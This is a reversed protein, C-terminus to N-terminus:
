QWKQSQVSGASNDAAGSQFCEAAIANKNVEELEKTLDDVIIRKSNLSVELTVAL